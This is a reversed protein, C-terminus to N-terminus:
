PLVSTTEYGGAVMFFTANPDNTEGAPCTAGWGLSYTGATLIPTVTVGAKTELPIVTASVLVTGTVRLRGFM